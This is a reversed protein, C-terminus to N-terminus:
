WSSKRIGFIDNKSASRRLEIRSIRFLRYVSHHRGTFVCMNNIRSSFCDKKYFFSEKLLSNKFELDQINRNKLLCKISNIRLEFM